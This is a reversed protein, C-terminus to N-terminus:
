PLKARYARQPEGPVQIQGVVYRGDRSIASAFLKSEPLAAGKANLLQRLDRVGQTRDWIGAPHYAVIVSGDGSVASLYPMGNGSIVETGNWIIGAVTNNIDLRGVIMSGDTTIAGAFIFTAGSPMALEDVSSPTWRYAGQGHPGPGVIVNGDGSLAGADILPTIDQTGSATWRQSGAAIVSGNANMSATGSLGIAVM